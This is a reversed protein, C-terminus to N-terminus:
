LLLFSFAHALRVRLFNPLSLKTIIHARDPDHHNGSLSTSEAFRIFGNEDALREHNKSREWAYEPGLFFHFQEHDHIQGGAPRHAGFNFWNFVSVIALLGFLWRFYRREKGDREFFFSAVLLCLAAEVVVLELVRNLVQDMDAAIGARDYLM